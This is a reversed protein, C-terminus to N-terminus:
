VDPFFCKIRVLIGVGGSASSSSISYWSYRSSNKSSTSWGHSCSLAVWAIRFLLSSSPFSSRMVSSFPVSMVNSMVPCVKPFEMMSLFRGPESSNELGTFVPTFPVISALPLNLYLCYGMILSMVNTKSFPLITSQSAASFLSTRVVIIVASSLLPSPELNRPSIANPM